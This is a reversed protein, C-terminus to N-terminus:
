WGGGGGGSSSPASLSAALRPAAAARPRRCAAGGACLQLTPGPTNISEISAAPPWPAAEGTAPDIRALRQLDLHQGLRLNFRREGGNWDGTFAMAQREEVHLVGEADLRARVAFEAWRLSKEQARAAGALLLAALLAAPVRRFPSRM